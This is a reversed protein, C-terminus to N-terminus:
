KITLSILTNLASDAHEDMMGKVTELLLQQEAQSLSLVTQDSWFVSKKFQKSSHVRHLLFSVLKNEELKYITFDHSFVVSVTGNDKKFTSSRLMIPPTFLEYNETKLSVQSIMLYDLNHDTILKKLNPIHSTAILTHPSSEDNNRNLYRMFNVDGNYGSRYYYDRRFKLIKPDGFEMGDAYPSIRVAEFDNSLKSVVADEYIRNLNLQEINALENIDKSAINKKFFLVDEMGASIFGIRADNKIEHKPLLTCGQLSFVSAIVVYFLYRM